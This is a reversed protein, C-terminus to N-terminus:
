EEEQWLEKSCTPCAFTKPKVGEQESINGCSGCLVTTIIPEDLTTDVRYMIRGAEAMEEADPIWKAIKEKSWGANEENISVGWIFIVMGLLSIPAGISIGLDEKSIIFMAGIVLCIISTLLLNTRLHQL